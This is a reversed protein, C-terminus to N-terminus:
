ALSRPSRAAPAGCPCRCLDTRQVPQGFDSTSSRPARDAVFTAAAMPSALTHLTAAVAENPQRRARTGASGPRVANGEAAASAISTAATVAAGPRGRRDDLAESKAGPVARPTEIVARQTSRGGLQVHWLTSRPRRRDSRERRSREPRRGVRQGPKCLHLTGTRVPDSSAAPGDHHAGSHIEGVVAHPCALRPIPLTWEDEDCTRPGDVHGLAHARLPHAPYPRRPCAASRRRV